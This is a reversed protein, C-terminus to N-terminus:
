AGDLATAGDGEDEVLEAKLAAGVDGVDGGAGGDLGAGAADDCPGDGVAALGEQADVGVVPRGEVDGCGVAEVGGSASGPDGGALQAGLGELRPVSGDADVAEVAAGLGGLVDVVEFDESGVAVEDAVLVEEGVVIAEVQYSRDIVKRPPGPQAHVFIENKSAKGLVVTDVRPNGPAPKM